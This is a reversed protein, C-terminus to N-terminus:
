ESFIDKKEKLVAQGHKIEYIWDCKRITSLRHAVIILTKYGQLAEISEMVATETETDLAATAEDLVLIEPDNYLARAIAVRQRQGGSFKVGWEGVREDLENPLKKIFEKLQAMELANWVRRDDIKEKEIGFAINERVSADVLYISQPVYGIIKHWNHRLREINIGDMLIQGSQPSLLSLILDALTTKGAGSAGIFAVSEGKKIKMNLNKIVSKAAGPYSFTLNSIEIEKKFVVNEDKEKSQDEFINEVELEKVMVLTDYAASLAPANYVLTNVSSLMAGLAPLIRFAAIAITAIQGILRTANDTYTIQFSVSLLLGSICVAEILYAPSASAVSMKVNSRNEGEMCKTYRHIFYSQRNNALVEKSGQIAEVAAQNCQNIYERAMRGYKQMPKRFILQTLIFCLIVLIMLPFALSPTQIIIFVTICVITLAKVLCNILQNIITYVSTVDTGVGRILRSSNNNM